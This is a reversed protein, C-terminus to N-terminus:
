DPDPRPPSSDIIERAEAASSAQVVDHGDFGAQRITRAVIMRMAKSDDVILVKVM